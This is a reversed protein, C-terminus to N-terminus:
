APQPDTFATVGFAALAAVAAAAFVLLLHKMTQIVGEM